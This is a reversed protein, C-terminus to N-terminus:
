TELPFLFSTKCPFLVAKFLRLILLDMQLDLLIAEESIPKCRHLIAWGLTQVSKILCLIESILVLSELPKVKFCKEDIRLVLLFLLNIKYNIQLVLQSITTPVFPREFSETWNKLLLIPQINEGFPTQFPAQPHKIKLTHLLQCAPWPDQVTPLTPQSAHTHLGWFTSCPDLFTCTSSCAHSKVFSTSKPDPFTHLSLTTESLTALLVAWTPSLQPLITCILCPIYLLHQRHQPLCVLPCCLDHSCAPHHHHGPDSLICPVRRKGEGGKGEWGM